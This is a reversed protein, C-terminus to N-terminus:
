RFRLLIGVLNNLLDPEKQLHENPSTNKHRASADFVVRINGPKNVNIVAQHPIYNIIKTPEKEVEAKSLISAHGHKLYENITQVYKEKLSPSKEIKKELSIM